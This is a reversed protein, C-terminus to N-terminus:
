GPHQGLVRGALHFNFSFHKLNANPKMTATQPGCVGDVEFWLFRRSIIMVWSVSSMFTSLLLFEDSPLIWKSGDSGDSKFWHPLIQFSSRTSFASDGM